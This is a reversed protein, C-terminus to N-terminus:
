LVDRVVVGGEVFRSSWFLSLFQWSLSLSEDGDKDADDEGAAVDRVDDEHREVDRLGNDDGRNNGM